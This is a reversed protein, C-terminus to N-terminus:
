NKKLIKPIIKKSDKIITSSNNNHLNSKKLSDNIVLEKQNLSPEIDITSKIKNQLINQL